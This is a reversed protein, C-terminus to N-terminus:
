RSTPRGAAAAHVTALPVHHRLAAARVDEYEPAIRVVRGGLRGIKVRIPGYPTKAVREERALKTREVLRRRVGFTPTELLLIQEIAALRSPPALVSLTVAPRSKKMQIPTTFVDLGGAALLREFLYGVLEGSTNDLNTEVLWAVDSTEPDAAAGVVLRLFDPRERLDWDGAGCGTAEITMQPFPEATALTTVLAAGTPTVLEREVPLGYTPWGKLLELTAPAPVPMAGHATQAVGRTLPLPSAHLRDIGLLRLGACTGAVDVIADVAGVEHFEVRAATTGHVRAEAAALREFVRVADDHGPARSRRLKSLIESARVHRHGRDPVVVDIKRCSVSGRMVRRERLSWGRVGLAGLARALEKAPVGADVIAGLLMDGAVGSWCDLYGARM